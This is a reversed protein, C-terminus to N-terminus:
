YKPSWMQNGCLYKISIIRSSMGGVWGDHFYIRVRGLGVGVEVGVWGWGWGWGLGLGLGFKYNFELTARCVWSTRLIIQRTLVTEVFLMILM